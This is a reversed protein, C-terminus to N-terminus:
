LEPASVATEGAEAEPAPELSGAATPEADVASVSDFNEAATPEFPEVAMPEAPTEGYVAQPESAEVVVQTTKEEYVAQPASAEVVVQTTEEGCVAQPESAEVVVATTEVGYVAQAGSAEVVVATTEEGYVAQPESAEVVVQTTEEGYVAQPEAAVAGNEAVDALAVDDAVMGAEGGREAEAEALAQMAVAAAVAAAEEAKKRQLQKQREQRAQREAKARQKEAEMDDALHAHKSAHAELWPEVFKKYAHEAALQEASKVSHELVSAWVEGDVRVEVRYLRKSGQRVSSDVRFDAKKREKQCWDILKSKYNWDKRELEDVDMHMGVIRKLIIKQTFKFGKDLFIAGILAELADGDVSKFGGSGHQDLQIMKHLGMHLGVKNLSVRSVIKSRMETLFGEDQTPYKKFLYDAIVASLVADGLYELRENNRRVGNLVKSASRHRFALRYLFINGPRFGLISKIARRLDRNKARNARFLKLM